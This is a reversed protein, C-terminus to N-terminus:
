PNLNLAGRFMHVTRTEAKPLLEIDEAAFPKQLQVGHTIRSDVYWDARHHKLKKEIIFCNAMAWSSTKLVVARPQHAIQGDFVAPALEDHPFAQGMVSIAYFSEGCQAQLWTKFESLEALLAARRHAPNIEYSLLLISDNWVYGHRHLPLGNNIKAVALRHMHVMASSAQGTAALSRTGILDFATIICPQLQETFM